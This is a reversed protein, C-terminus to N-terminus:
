DGKGVATREVLHSQRLPDIGPGQDARGFHVGVVTNNRPQVLHPYHCNTVQPKSSPRRGPDQLQPNRESPLLLLPNPYPARHIRSSPGKLSVRSSASNIQSNWHGRWVVDSFVVDYIEILRYRSEPRYLRCKYLEPRSERMIIERFPDFCRKKYATPVLM